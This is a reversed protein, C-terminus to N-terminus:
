HSPAAYEDVEPFLNDERLSATIRDTAIKSELEKLKAETWGLMRLLEDSPGSSTQERLRNLFSRLEDAENSIKILRHLFKLRRAEREERARALALLEQQRQWQKQRRENEERRARVGVLYAVLGGAIDDVLNELRQRRGDKWNRRLGGVYQETIELNLVGTRVFDFEPYAQERDFAWIGLRADRERKKRLREEKALEEITPVHKRREVREKLSFAVRDPAATIRMHDGTPEVLQGHQELARALADLVTIVREVSASGVEIGCHGARTARVVGDSDPRAMRLIHATAAVAPHAAVIPDAAVAVVSTSAKAGRREREQEM